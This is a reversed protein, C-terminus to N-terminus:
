LADLLDINRVFSWSIEGVSVHGFTSKALICQAVIYTLAGADMVERRFWYRSQCLGEVGGEGLDFFLFGSVGWLVRM